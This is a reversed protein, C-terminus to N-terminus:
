EITLYTPMGEMYKNTATICYTYQKEKRVNKHWYELITSGLEIILNKKDGEIQYISYKNVATQNNPNAEWKLVNIYETRLLSRNLAKQGTFNLPPLPIPASIHVNDIFVIMDGSPARGFNQSQFAFHSKVALDPGPNGHDQPSESFLLIDNVFFDLRLKNGNWGIDMRLNYWKDLDIRRLMPIRFYALNKPSTPVPLSQNDSIEGGVHVKSGGGRVEIGTFWSAPSPDQSIGHIDLGVRAFFDSNSKSSLLIDFSVRQIEGWPVRDLPNGYLCRSCYFWLSM